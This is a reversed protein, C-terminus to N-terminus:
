GGTLARGAWPDQAMWTRDLPSFLFVMGGNAIQPILKRARAQEVAPCGESRGARTATVYPAGHVVVGRARAASNYRGSVGALRLGPSRYARGGSKGRFSYTEQAVYLGLSTANSGQRNSFRTPRGGNPSASGRGHAVTFPGDVVKLARMDFVYGRPTRSDLGYDVFYLYPKRVKEPHAAQYHYYAQFALRLADPDSQREVRGELAALAKQVRVKALGSEIGVGELVGRAARRVAAAAAPQAPTATAPPAEARPANTGYILGGTAGVLGAGAVLMRLNTRM